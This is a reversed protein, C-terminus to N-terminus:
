KILKNCLENILKTLEKLVDTNEKMNKEFKTILYWCMVIPFAVQTIMNIDLEM